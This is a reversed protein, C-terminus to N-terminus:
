KEKQDEEGGKSYDSCWILVQALEAKHRTVGTCPRFM